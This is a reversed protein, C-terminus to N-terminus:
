RTAATSIMHVIHRLARRDSMDCRSRVMEMLYMTRSDRVKLVLRHDITMASGMDRACM